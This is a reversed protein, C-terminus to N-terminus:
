DDQEGEDEWIEQRVAHQQLVLEADRLLSALMAEQAAHQSTRSQPLDAWRALKLLLEIHAIAVKAASHHASFGKADDPVDQAMFAHYSSLSKNVAQPLFTSIQKRSKEELLTDPTDSM